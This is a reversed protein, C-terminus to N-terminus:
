LHSCFAGYFILLNLRECVFSEIMNAIILMKKHQTVRSMYVCANAHTRIIVNRYKYSNLM